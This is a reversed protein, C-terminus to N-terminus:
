LFTIFGACTQYAQPDSAVCIAVFFCIFLRVRSNDSTNPTPQRNKIRYWFLTVKGGIKIAVHRAPALFDLRDAALGKQCAKSQLFAFSNIIPAGSVVPHKGRM